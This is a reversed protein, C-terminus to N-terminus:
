CSFIQNKKESYSTKPQLDKEPSLWLMAVESTQSGPQNPIYINVAAQFCFRLGMIVLRTFKFTTQGAGDHKM